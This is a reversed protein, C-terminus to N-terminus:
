GGAGKQLSGPAKRNSTRSDNDNIQQLELGDMTKFQRTLASENNTNDFGNM